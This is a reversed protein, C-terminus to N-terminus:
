SHQEHNTRKTRSPIPERQAMLVQWLQLHLHNAVATPTWGLALLDRIDRHQRATLNLSM